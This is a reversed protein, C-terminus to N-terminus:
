PLNGKESMALGVKILEKATSDIWARFREETMYSLSCTRKTVPPHATSHKFHQLELTADDDSENDNSLEYGIDLVVKLKGTPIEAIYEPNAMWSFGLGKEWGNEAAINKAEFKNM